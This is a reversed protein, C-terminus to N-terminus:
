FGCQVEYEAWVLQRIEKPLTFLAEAMAKKRGSARCFNDGPHCIAMGRGIIEGDVSTTALSCRRNGDVRIDTFNGIETPTCVQHYFRVEVKVSNHIVKIM